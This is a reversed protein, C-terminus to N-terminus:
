GGIVMGPRPKPEPDSPDNPKPTPATPSSCAQLVSGLLVAALFFRVKRM